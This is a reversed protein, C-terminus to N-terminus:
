RGRARFLLTFGDGMILQLYRVRRRRENLTFPLSPTPL